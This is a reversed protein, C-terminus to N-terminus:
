AAVKVRILAGHGKAFKLYLVPNKGCTADHMKKTKKQMGGVQIALLVNDPRVKKSFDFWLSASM